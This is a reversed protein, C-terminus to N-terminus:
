AANADAGWDAFTATGSQKTKGTWNADPAHTADVGSEASFTAVIVKKGVPDAVSITYHRNNAATWTEDVHTAYCWVGDQGEAWVWAYVRDKDADEIGYKAYINTTVVTGPEVPAPENYKEVWIGNDYDGTQIYFNYKAAEKLKFFGDSTAEVLGACDTKVKDAGYVVPDGEAPTFTFKIEVNATSGTFDAKLWQYETEKGQGPNQQVGSTAILEGHKKTVKMPSNEYPDDPESDSSSSGTDKSSESSSLESTKSSESSSLSTDKSSESSSQGTQQPQGGCSALVFLSSLLLIVSSNRKLM